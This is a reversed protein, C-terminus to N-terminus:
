KVDSQLHMFAGYIIHCLGFGIAWIALSYQWNDVFGCTIGLVIQIYGLSRVNDFTYKSANVLALGYFVLTASDVLYPANKVLIICFLGGTVLPVLMNIILRRSTNDWIKVGNKRSQNITLYISVFLSLGLVILGDVAIYQVLPSNVSLDAFGNIEEHKIKIYAFYAGIIAFCGAFVGSLGSLSIFRSSREMMHRIESLDNLHKNM